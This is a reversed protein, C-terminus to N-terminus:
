LKFKENQRREECVKGVLDRILLFLNLVEEM